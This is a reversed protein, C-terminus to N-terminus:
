CLCEGPYVPSSALAAGSPPWRIRDDQLRGLPRTPPAQHFGDEAAPRHAPQDPRAEPGVSGPGARTACRAGGNAEGSALPMRRDSDRTESTRVGPLLGILDRRAKVKISNSPTIAIMATKIASSKGATCDARSAARRAWHM